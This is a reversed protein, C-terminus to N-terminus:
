RSAIALLHPGFGLLSPEAEVSRALELIGERYDPDLWDPGGDAQYGGPGEVGFVDEVRFDGAILEARLEEPRHFYATTFQGDSQRENRHVGTALASQVVARFAADSAFGKVVGDIAAAFRSVAAAGVWGGPRLVRRAEALARLRDNPDVLHYLPGLLLVVDFSNPPFEISRADGLSVGFPTGAAATARAQDVHLPVPDVLQVRHGLGSLWSSYRGSGGGVDLIDLPGPALRRSLLEKTRLLELREVGGVMLRDAEGGRGYYRMVDPDLAVDDNEAHDGVSRNRNGAAEALVCSTV